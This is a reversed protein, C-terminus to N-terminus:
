RGITGSIAPIASAPIQPIRPAVPPTLVGLRRAMALESPTLVQNLRLQNKLYESYALAGPGTYAEEGPGSTRASQLIGPATPEPSTTWNPPQANATADAM